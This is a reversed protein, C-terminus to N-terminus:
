DLCIMKLRKMSSDLGEANSSQHDSKFTDGQQKFTDGQKNEIQGM